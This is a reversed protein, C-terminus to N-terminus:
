DMDAGQAAAVELTFPLDLRRHWRPSPTDGMVDEGDVVGVFLAWSNPRKSGMVMSYHM